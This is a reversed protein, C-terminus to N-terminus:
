FRMPNWASYKNHASNPKLLGLGDYATKMPFDNFRYVPKWNQIGDIMEQQTNIITQRSFPADTEEAVTLSSYRLEPM